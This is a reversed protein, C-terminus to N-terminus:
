DFPATSYNVVCDFKYIENVSVEVDFIIKGDIEEHLLSIGKSLLYRNISLEHNYDAILKEPCNEPLLWMYLM